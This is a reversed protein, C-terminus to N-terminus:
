AAQQPEGQIAKLAPAAKGAAEAAMALDGSMKETQAQAQAQGRAEEADQEDLLWDPPAVGQIAERFAKNSDFQSIVTPEIQAQLAIIEASERYSNAKARKRADEIPNDYTIDIDQGKLERPIQDPPGWYGLAIAMTMTLDLIWGNREQEAPDIIPQAVRLYEADRRAVEAATMKDGDGMPPLFLKNLYWADMMTGKMAEMLAEGLQPNKGLELARLAEGTREDYLRDVWTIGGSYTNVGGQIAERVGVLPPEVAKEGAELISWTMVQITRADPISCVVSPSFGYPSSSVRHWRSVAYPFWPLLKEAMVCRNIMDIDLSIWDLPGAKVRKTKRTYDYQILPMAVHLCNIKDGGANTLKDKVKSHISWGRTQERECLQRVSLKYKRFMTDIDGDANERWACDRLHWTRYRFGAKDTREECSCVSNGFAAYDHDAQVQSSTFHSRIDYLLNRTTKARREFYAQVQTSDNIQDIRARPMFWDRGKPRLVSGLWGAFDRRFLIPQSNYLKSAFDEGALRDITFDAREPYFNEATEQWFLDLNEKAKFAEEAQRCVEDGKPDLAAVPRKLPEAM